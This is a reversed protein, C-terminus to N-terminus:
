NPKSVFNYALISLDSKHEFLMVVEGGSGGDGGSIGCCYISGTHGEWLRVASSGSGRGSGTATACGAAIGVGTFGRLDWLRVIRDAGGSM